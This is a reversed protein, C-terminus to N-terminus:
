WNTSYASQDESLWNTLKPPFVYDLEDMIIATFPNYRIKEYYILIRENVEKALLEHINKYPLKKLENEKWDPTYDFHFEMINGYKDQYINIEKEFVRKKECIEFLYFNALIVFFYQLYMHCYDLPLDKSANLKTIIEFTRCVHDVFQDPNSSRDFITTNGYYKRILSGVRSFDKPKIWVTEQGKRQFLGLLFPKHASPNLFRYSKKLDNFFPEIDKIFIDHSVHDQM